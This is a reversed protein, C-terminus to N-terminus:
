LLDEDREPESNSLPPSSSSSLSESVANTGGCVSTSAEYTRENLAPSGDLKALTLSSCHVGAADLLALSLHM